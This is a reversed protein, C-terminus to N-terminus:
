FNFYLFTSVQSLSILSWTFLTGLIFLGKGAVGKKAIWEEAKLGKLLVVGLILLIAICALGFYPLLQPIKLEMFRIITYVEPIAFNRGMTFLYGTFGGAFMKRFYTFALQLSDSRFFVLSLLFFIDTKLYNMWDKQFKVKPFLTEFVIVIGNLCGWVIFTWNAGHWIGSVLFVVLINLCQRAKGKRSGGLPFYIYTTLFRGLTMHWRRWFDKISVAKYPSDFNEPLQLGFMVAIGRAMDCYGSFDFYLQFLYCIMTIWASPIDLYYPIIAYENFVGNVVLALVDAFLVKKALGLIFLSFGNLFRDANLKIAREEKIQPIFESHLVIPGAILQPFFTIFCAYDVVGYHPAKQKYRDVLYSIQQFTFFSIGLPLAIKELQWDGHFLFRCNEMFFNFYKFYFLIGLNATLGGYFVTRRIFVRRAHELGFSCLYNLVLSAVLVLLFWPNYYWYFWLSMLVLFTKAYVYKNLKLLLYWGGLCLPLFVMIFVVSNFLMINGKGIEVIWGQNMVVIYDADQITSFTNM